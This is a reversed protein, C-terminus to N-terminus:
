KTWLYDLFEIYETIKDDTMNDPDTRNMGFQKESYTIFQRPTEPDDKFEPDLTIKAFPVDLNEKTYM